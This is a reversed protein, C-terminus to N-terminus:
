KYMKYILYGIVGVVVLLVGYLIVVLWGQKSEGLKGENESQIEVVGLIARHGQEYHMFKHSSEVELVAFGGGKKPRLDPLRFDLHQLWAGNSDSEVPKLSVSLMQTVTLRCEEDIEVFYKNLRAEILHDFEYEAKRLLGSWNSTVGSSISTASYWGLTTVNFAGCTSGPFRFRSKAMNQGHMLVFVTPETFRDTGRKELVVGQSVLFEGEGTDAMYCGFLAFSAGMLDFSFTEALSGTRGPFRFVSDMNLNKQLEVEKPKGDEGGTWMIKIGTRNFWLERRPTFDHFAVKCELQDRKADQAADLLVTFNSPIITGNQARNMQLIALHQFPRYTQNADRNMYWLHVFGHCDPSLYMSFVTSVVTEEHSHGEPMPVDVELSYEISTEFLLGLPVSDNSLKSQESAGIKMCNAQEVHKFVLKFSMRPAWAVTKIKIEIARQEGFSRGVYVIEGPVLTISSANESLTEEPSFIMAYSMNKISDTSLYLDEEQEVPERLIEFFEGLPLKGKREQVGTWKEARKLGLNGLDGNLGDVFRQDVNRPSKSFYELGVGLGPEEREERGKWNLEVYVLASRSSQPSLRRYSNQGFNGWRHGKHITTVTADVSWVFVRDGGGHLIIMRPPTEQKMNIYYISEGCTDWGVRSVISSREDFNMLMYCFKGGNEASLIYNLGGKVMFRTELYESTEVVRREKQDGYIHYVYYGISCFVGDVDSYVAKAESFVSVTVTMNGLESYDNSVLHSYEIPHVMHKYLSEELPPTTLHAVRISGNGKEYDFRIDYNIRHDKKQIESFFGYYSYNLDQPSFKMRYQISPDLSLVNYKNPFLEFFGEKEITFILTIPEIQSYRDEKLYGEIRYSIECGPEFTNIRKCIRLLDVYKEVTVLKSDGKKITFSYGNFGSDIRHNILVLRATGSLAAFTFRISFKNLHGNKLKEELEDKITIKVIVIKETDLRIIEPGETLVKQQPTPRENNTYGRGEVVFFLDERYLSQNRDFRVYSVTNQDTVNRINDYLYVGTDPHSGYDMSYFECIYVDCRERQSSARNQDIDLSILSVNKRAIKKYYTRIEQSVVKRRMDDRTTSGNDVVIVGEDAGHRDIYEMVPTTGDHYDYTMMRGFCGKVVLYVEGSISDSSNGDEFVLLVKDKPKYSSLIQLSNMKKSYHYETFDSTHSILINNVNITDACITSSGIQVYLTFINTTAAEEIKFTSIGGYSDIYYTIFELQDMSKLRSLDSIENIPPMVSISSALRTSIIHSSNKISISLSNDPKKPQTSQNPKNILYKMPIVMLRPSSVSLTFMLMDQEQINHLTIEPLIKISPTKSNSHRGEIVISMIDNNMDLYKSDLEHQYIYVTDMCTSSNCLQTCSRLSNNNTHIRCASINLNNGNKIIYSGSRINFEHHRTEYLEFSLQQAMHQEIELFTCNPSTTVMLTDHSQIKSNFELSSSCNSTINLFQIPNDNSQISVLFQLNSNSYDPKYKQATFFSDSIQIQYKPLHSRLNFPFSSITFASGSYIRIRVSERKLLEYSNQTLELEALSSIYTHNKEIQWILCRQNKCKTEITLETSIFNFSKMIITGAGETVLILNPEIYLKLMHPFRLDTSIADFILNTKISMVMFILLSLRIPSTIHSNPQILPRRDIKRELM